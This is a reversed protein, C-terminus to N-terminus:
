ARTELRPRIRLFRPGGSFPGDILTIVAAYVMLGVGSVVSLVFFAQLRSSAPPLVHLLMESSFAAFLLGVVTRLFPALMSPPLIRGWRRRAATVQVVNLIAFTVSTSFAIGAVGFFPLFLFNLGINLLVNAFAIKMSVLTAQQIVFLTSFIVSVVMAPLGLIFMGFVASTQAAAQGSYAGGHYAFTVAEHRLIVAIVVIPLVFTMTMSLARSMSEQIAPWGGQAKRVAWTATLPAVMLAVFLGTPVLRMGLELGTVSGARLGGAMVRDVVPNVQLVSAGIV